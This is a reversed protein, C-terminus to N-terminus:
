REAYDRLLFALEADEIAPRGSLGKSLLDTRGAHSAFSQIRVDSPSQQPSPVTPSHLRPDLASEAPSLASPPNLIFDINQSTTAHSQQVSTTSQSTTREHQSMPAPQPAYTNYQGQVAVASLAELGHTAYAPYSSQDITFDQAHHGHSFGHQGHQDFVSNDEGDEDEYPNNTHVFTLDKPIEVWTTSKGFTEKYGYFSKLGDENSNM